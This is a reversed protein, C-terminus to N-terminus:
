RVIRQGFQKPPNIEFCSLGSYFGILSDLKAIAQWSHQCELSTVSKADRNEAADSVWGYRHAVLVIM